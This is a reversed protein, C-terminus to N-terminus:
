GTASNGSRSQHFAAGTAQPDRFGGMCVWDCYRHVASCGCVNWYSRAACTRNRTYPSPSGLSRQPVCDTPSPPMAQWRQPAPDPHKMKYLTRGARGIDGTKVADGGAARIGGDAPLRQMARDRRGYQVHRKLGTARLRAAVRRLHATRPHNSLRSRLLPPLDEPPPDRRPRTPASASQRSRSESLVLRAM